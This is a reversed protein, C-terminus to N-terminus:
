LPCTAATKASAVRQVPGATRGVDMGELQADQSIGADESFCTDELDKVSKVSTLHHTGFWVFNAKWSLGAM